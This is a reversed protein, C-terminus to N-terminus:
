KKKVTRAKYRQNCITCYCIKSGSRAQILKGCCGEQKCVWEKLREAMQANIHLAKIKRREKDAQKTAPVLIHMLKKYEREIWKKESGELDGDGIREGLQIFRRWLLENGDDNPEFLTPQTNDPM